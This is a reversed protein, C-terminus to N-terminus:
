REDCALNKYKFPEGVIEYEKYVCPILCGTMNTIIKLESMLLNLFRDGFVDAEKTSACIPVSTSTEWPPRCGIKEVMRGIVCSHFDYESAM